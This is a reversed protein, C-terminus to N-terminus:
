GTKAEITPDSTYSAPYVVLAPPPVGGGGGAGLKKLLEPLLLHVANEGGPRGQQLSIALFCM